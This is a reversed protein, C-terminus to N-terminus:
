QTLEPRVTPVAPQDIRDVPFLLLGLLVLLFVGALLAPVLAKRWAPEKVENDALRAVPNNALRWARTLEDAFLGLNAHRLTARDSLAQRLSPKYAEHMSRGPDAFWTDTRGSQMVQPLFMPKLSRGVLLEYVIAASAFIDSQVTPARAKFLEPARYLDAVEVPPAQPAEVYEVRHDAHCYFNEPVLREGLVAGRAHLERVCRLLDVAVREVGRPDPNARLGVIYARMACPLLTVQAFVSAEHPAEDDPTAFALPALPAPAPPPAPSPPPPAPPPPEDHSLLEASLSAVEVSPPAVNTNPPAVPSSKRDDHTPPALTLVRRAVPPAAIAVAPPAAVAVTPPAAIVVASPLRPAAVIPPAAVAGIPLTMPDGPADPDLTPEDPNITADPDVAPAADRLGAFLDGGQARDRAVTPVDDLLRMARVNPPPARPTKRPDLDPSTTEVSDDASRVRPPTPPGPPGKM